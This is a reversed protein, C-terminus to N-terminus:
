KNIYKNIEKLMYPDTLILDEWRHCKYQAIINLLLEHLGACVHVHIGRRGNDGTPRVISQYM